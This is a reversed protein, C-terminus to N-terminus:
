MLRPLDLAVAGIIALTPLAGAVARWPLLTPRPMWALLIAIALSAIYLIFSVGWMAFVAWLSDTTRTALGAAAVAAFLCIWPAVAGLVVVVRPRWAPRKFWVWLCATPVGFEVAAAGATLMSELSM